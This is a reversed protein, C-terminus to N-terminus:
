VNLYCRDNKKSENIRRNKHQIKNSQQNTTKHRKSHFRNIAIWVLLFQFPSPNDRPVQQKHIQRWNMTVYTSRTFNWPQKRWCLLFTMDSWISARQCTPWPPTMGNLFDIEFRGFRCFVTKNFTFNSCNILRDSLISFIKM